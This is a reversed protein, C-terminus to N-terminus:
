VLIPLTGLGNQKRSSTGRYVKRFYSPTVCWSGGGGETRGEYYASCLKALDVEVM